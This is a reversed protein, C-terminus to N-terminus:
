PEFRDAFLGSFLLAWELQNRQLLAINYNEPIDLMRRLSEGRPHRTSPNPPIAARILAAGVELFTLGSRGLFSWWKMGNRLRVCVRVGDREFAFRTRQKPESLIRTDRDQLALDRLLEYAALLVRWDKKNSQKFTGYLTAYTVEVQRVGRRHGWLPADTAISNGLRKSIDDNLTRPGSKITTAYLTDGELLEADIISEESQAGSTSRHWGYEPVTVEELMKGISTEISSFQKALRLHSELDSVATLSEVKAHALLVFPNITGALRQLDISEDPLVFQAEELWRRFSRELALVRERRDRERDVARLAGLVWRKSLIIPQAKPM